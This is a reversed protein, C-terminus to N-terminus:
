ELGPQLEVDSFKDVHIKTNAYYIGKEVCSDHVFVKRMRTVSAADLLDEGDPNNGGLYRHLRLRYMGGMKEYGNPENTHVSHLWKM